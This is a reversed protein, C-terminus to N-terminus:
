ALALGLHLSIALHLHDVSGSLSYEELRSERRIAGVEVEDHLIIAIEDSIIVLSTGLPSGISHLLFSQSCLIIYVDIV